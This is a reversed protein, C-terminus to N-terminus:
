LPRWRQSLRVLGIGCAAGLGDAFLDAWEAGRGVYPQVIEILGGYTLAAVWILRWHKPHRAAMPLVLLGFALVHAAKDLGMPPAVGTSSPMLTTIGIALALLFTLVQAM